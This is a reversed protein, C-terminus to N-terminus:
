SIYHKNECVNVHVGAGALAALAGCYYARNVVLARGANSDRLRHLHLPVLGGDKDRIFIERSNTEGNWEEVAGLDALYKRWIYAREDLWQALHRKESQRM